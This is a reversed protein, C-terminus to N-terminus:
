HIEVFVDNGVLLVNHTELYLKKIKCFDTNPFYFNSGDKMTSLAIDTLLKSFWFNWNTPDIEPIWPDCDPDHSLQWSIEDEIKEHYIEPIYDSFFGLQVKEDNIKKM